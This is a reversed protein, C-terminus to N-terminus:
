LAMVVYTMVIYAMVIYAMVIYAMVIYAMVIYAMVIYSESSATLIYAMVIYAIVIYVMEIYAMVIYSESLATVISFAPPEFANISSGRVIAVTLPWGPKPGLGPWLYMPRLNDDDLHEAAEAVVVLEGNESM